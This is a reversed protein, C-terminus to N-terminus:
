DDNQYLSCDIKKCYQIFSLSEYESKLEEREQIISFFSSGSGSMFFNNQYRDQLTERLTKLEPYVKTAAPWLDNFIEIANWTDTDRNKSDLTDFTNFVDKTSLGVKPVAILLDLDTNLDLPEVIEGIGKIVASVGQVFFPVDSGVERVIDLNSPLDLEYSDCLYRILAGADSSGGGLGSNYPIKKDIYIDFSKDFSPNKKKILKLAKHITSEIKNLNGDSFKINESISEEIEIDDYLDIPIMLSSLKHLSDQKESFIELNLNIKASTRLKM